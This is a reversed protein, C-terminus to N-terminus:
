FYPTKLIAVVRFSQEHELCIWPRFRMWIQGVHLVHNSAAMTPKHKKGPTRLKYEHSM